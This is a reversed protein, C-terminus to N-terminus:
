LQNNAKKSKKAKTSKKTKKSKRSKKSKKTKKSKRSKKTKRGGLFSGINRSIAPDVNDYGSQKRITRTIEPITRQVQKVCQKQLTENDVYSINGIRISVAAQCHDASVVNGGLITSLSAIPIQQSKSNSDTQIVFIQKDRVIVESLQDLPIMVGYIGISRMNLHPDEIINDERPTFATDINKCQFVIQEDYDNVMKRLQAKDILATQGEYIFLVNNPDSEIYSCLDVDIGEILDFGKLSSQIFPNIDSKHLTVINTTLLRERLLDTEDDSDPVTEIAMNSLDNNNLTAGNFDDLTLDTHTFNSETITAGELNVRLLTAESFDTNSITADNFFCDVLYVESFDTNSITADNFVCDILHAVSFDTNSITANNFVCETIDAKTLKTNEMHAQTFNCKNWTTNTLITNVFIAEKFSSNSVKIYHLNTDSFDFGDFNLDDANAGKQLLLIVIEAHGEEMAFPLPRYGDNNPRELDIDYKQLLIKVLEVNNKMIAFMLAMYREDTTLKTENLMTNIQELDVNGNLIAQKLESYTGGGRQTYKRTNKKSKSKKSKTTTM